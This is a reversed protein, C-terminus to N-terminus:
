VPFSTQVLSQYLLGHIATILGFSLVTASFIAVAISAAQAFSLM